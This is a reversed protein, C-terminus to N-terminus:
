FYLCCIVCHDHRLSNNCSLTRTLFLRPAPPLGGTPPALSWHRTLLANVDVRGILVIAHPHVQDEIADLEEHSRGATFGEDTVAADIEDFHSVMQGLPVGSDHFASEALVREVHSPLSWLWDVLTM